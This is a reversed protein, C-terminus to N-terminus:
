SLSIHFIKEVTALRKSTRSRESHIISAMEEVTKGIDKNFVIYDYDVCNEIEGFAKEFRAKIVEEDDSGRDRLRKELVELSPPLVYILISEKFHRKINKGGQSDVDMLLDLGQDMQGQLSSLSTGKLDDYVEAWEAFAGEHIMTEFTDRDVFHYDVGDVENDRPKRSTHSISYGLAQVRKGLLQVITTKGVGSPGSIVYLQGSM